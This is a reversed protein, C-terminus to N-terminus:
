ELRQYLIHKADFMNKHLLGFTCQSAPHSPNSKLKCLYQLSLRQRRFDLPPENAEVQLSEVPSTRFAGLCIRLAQNQIPDLMAIYSKRASGYVISGYDLKSRVFTRYLKLLMDTDSGWGKCSVVKLLNLVKSCKARLQKLHPIFSCKEDFIVGLFKTQNVVPILRGGLQLQPHDHQKRRNCFHVCNTKTESFRFGNTDSWTQLKYLCLQLKREVSRMHKSRCCVIFDDVFLSNEVGANLCSVISNIKLGFLTVSLIGGQPVGNEQVFSDSLVSGLKVRFKREHLYNSIFVPLNGRLGANYLDRLIGYRWTTDYAKEM